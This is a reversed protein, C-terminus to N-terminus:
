WTCSSGVIWQVVTDKGSSVSQTIIKGNVLFTVVAGENNSLDRASVVIHQFKYCGYIPSLYPTSVTRHEVGDTKTISVRAFGNHSDVRFQVRWMAGSKAGEKFGSRIREEVDGPVFRGIEDPELRTTDASMLCYGITKSVWMGPQECVVVRRDKLMFFRYPSFLDIFDRQSDIDESVYTNAYDCRLYFATTTPVYDMLESLRQPTQGNHAQQYRHIAVAIQEIHQISTAQGGGRRAGPQSSVMSFLLGVALFTGCLVGAIM